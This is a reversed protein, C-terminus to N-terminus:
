KYEDLIRALLLWRASVKTAICYSCFWAFMDQVSRESEGGDIDRLRMCRLRRYGATQSKRTGLVVVHAVRWDGRKDLVIDAGCGGGDECCDRGGTCGWFFPFGM